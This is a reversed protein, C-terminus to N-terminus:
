TLPWLRSLRAQQLFEGLRHSQVIFSKISPSRMFRGICPDSDITIPIKEFM